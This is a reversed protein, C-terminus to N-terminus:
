ESIIKKKKVSIIAEFIGYMIGALPWIMWSQSWNNSIFSYALYIFSIILWYITAYKEILKKGAKKESTYDDLQLIINFSDHIINTKVLFFVGIGVFLVTIASLGTMLDDIRSNSLSGMFLAGSMLPIASLICFTIGIIKFVMHQNEYNNSDKLIQKRLQESLNCDEYEYNENVKLWRNGAIFLAVAAAIFVLLVIVGVGTAFNISTSLLDLNTLSILVLLTIPSFICLMVGIAILTSSRRRASLFAQVSSQSLYNEKPMM